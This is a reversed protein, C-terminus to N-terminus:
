GKLGRGRGLNNDFRGAKTPYTLKMFISSKSSSMPLRPVTRRKLDSEMGSFYMSFIRCAARRVGEPAM